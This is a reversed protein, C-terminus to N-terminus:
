FSARWTETTLRVSSDLPPTLTFVRPANAFLHVRYLRWDEPREVAVALENRSLFFPTRASGNTTKVEILRPKGGPHFSLVDYGAGDGDEDAIWRVDRALDPRDAEHLRRRELEVVFAEGAKGLTRNRYDREVPDFKKILRRLREPLRADDLTAVPASVFVEASLPPLPAEVVPADLVGPHDHLYRDIAELLANQYHRAPKYGPIWRAGLEDLAGSINQYKFEIAGNSRGLKSVLSARHQSKVYPQGSLDAALMDFYDAVIAQLEEPRWDTGSIGDVM